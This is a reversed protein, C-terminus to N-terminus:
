GPTEWKWTVGGNKGHKTMFLFFLFIPGDFVIGKILVFYQLVTKAPSFFVSLLWCLICVIQYTSTVWYLNRVRRAQVTYYKCNEVYGIFLLRKIFPLEHKHKKLFTKSKGLEYIHCLASRLITHIFIPTLFLSCIIGDRGIEM